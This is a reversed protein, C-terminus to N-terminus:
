GKKKDIHKIILNNIVTRYIVNGHMTLFYFVKLSRFYALRHWIKAEANERIACTNTLILDAEECVNTQEHGDDILLRSVIESDAVNMQCGYTEIFFKRLPSYSPDNPEYHERNLIVTSNAKGQFDKLGPLTGVPLSNGCNSTSFAHFSKPFFRILRRNQSIM